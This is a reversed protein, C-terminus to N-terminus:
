LSNATDLGIILVVDSREIVNEPFEGRTKAEEVTIVQAKNFFRKLSLTTKSLPDNTILFTADRKVVDNEVSVVRGGLNNVVRSAYTAVGLIDTGNLVAITSRERAIASEVNKQQIFGDINTYGNIQDSSLNQLDTKKVAKINAYYSVVDDFSMNTRMAQGLQYFELISIQTLSGNKLYGEVLSFSNEEVVVYRDIPLAFNNEFTKVTMDMSKALDGSNVSLSLQLNKKIPENAYKGPVDLTADTDFSFVHLIGGHPDLFLFQAKNIEIYDKSFGNIELLLITILGNNPFPEVINLGNENIASAFTKTLTKYSVYGVLTCFSFIFLLFIVTYRLTTKKISYLKKRKAADKKWSKKNRRTKALKKSKKAPKIPM